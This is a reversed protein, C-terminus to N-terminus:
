ANWYAAFRGGAGGYGTVARTRMGFDLAAQRQTEFAGPSLEHRARRASIAPKEAWIATFMATGGHMYSNLYRLDRGKARNTEYAEQYEASTMTSDVVYDGISGKSYLATYRRESGVSAVSVVTPRWGEATWADFKDQHEAATRGHYARVRADSKSWIAAYRVGSGAAYSDVHVLAFGKAKYEDYRGQYQSATMNHHTPGHPVPSAARFIVNFRVTSGDWYGDIWELRYGAADAQDYVRQYDGAAVGHRVYECSPKRGSDWADFSAPVDSPPVVLALKGVLDDIAGTSINTAVAVSIESLDVGGNSIYGDPYMVVESTGGALRGNHGVKGKAGRAWGMRDIEDFTYTDALHVMVRALDGASAMFGGQALAPGSDGFSMLDLSGNGNPKHQWADCSDAHEREPRVRNHLKLPALFDERVYEAFPKGSLQEIILTFLGFGFNSYSYTGPEVVLRKTLLFHRHLHHYTIDDRDIGFLEAAGAIDASEAFGATHDFLDQVTIRAYWIRQNNTQSGLGSAIDADYRGDFLGDPGYLRTTAPDIGKAALIKAVSPGTICPKSTSGIKTRSSESMKRKGSADVRAYGYGKSLLLKGARTIAVTVGPLGGSAIAEQVIPDVRQELAAWAVGTSPVDTAM